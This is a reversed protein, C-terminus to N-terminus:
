MHLAVTCNETSGPRVLHGIACGFPVAPRVARQKVQEELNVNLIVDIYKVSCSNHLVTKLVTHEVFLLNRKMPISLYNRLGGDGRYQIWLGQMVTLLLSSDEAYCQKYLDEKKLLVLIGNITTSWPWFNLIGGQQYWRGISVRMMYDM